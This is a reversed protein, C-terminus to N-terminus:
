LIRKFIRGVRGMVRRRLPISKCFAADVEFCKKLDSEFDAKLDKIVAHDSIMINAERNRRLSLYDLNTSGLTAWDDDIIAYKAHLVSDRYLFIGIKHKLMYKFYTQAVYDAIPVDSQASMMVKIEVGRRVAKMMARKLLFPPMFYPTVLYISHQATRIKSLLELYIPNRHLRPSATVLRYNEGAAKRALEKSIKRTSIYHWARDFYTVFQEVLAGSVRAHLDRWEEMDKSFCVSGIYAIKRDILMLKTHNRPFWTQPAFLNLWNLKNYFHVSGGAKIIESIEISSFLARSGVRDLILRVKIGQKAKALFIKLFKLGIEDDRIIYQEFEISREAGVCDQYM